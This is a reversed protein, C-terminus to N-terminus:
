SRRILNKVDTMQKGNIGAAVIKGKGKIFHFSVKRM